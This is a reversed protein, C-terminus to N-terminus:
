FQFSVLNFISNDLNMEDEDWYKVGAASPKIERCCQRKENQVRKTVHHLENITHVISGLPDRFRWISDYFTKMRYDWTQSVDTIKM